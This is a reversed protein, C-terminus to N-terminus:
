NIDKNEIIHQSKFNKDKIPTISLEFSSINMQM